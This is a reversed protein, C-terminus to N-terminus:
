RLGSSRSNPGPSSRTLASIKPMCTGETLIKASQMCFSVYRLNIANTLKKKLIKGPKATSAATTKKTAIVTRILLHLLVFPHTVVLNPAPSSGALGWVESPLSFNPCRRRATGTVVSNVKRRREKRV